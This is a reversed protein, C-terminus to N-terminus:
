GLCPWGQGRPKTCAPVFEPLLTYPSWASLRLLSAGRRCSRAPQRVRGVLTLQDGPASVVACLGGCSQGPPATLVRRGGRSANVPRRSAWSAAGDVATPVPM